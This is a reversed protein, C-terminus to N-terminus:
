HAASARVFRNNMWSLLSIGTFKLNGNDIKLSELSMIEDSEELSLFTGLPLKQYMEQTAPVVLEVESDGYYRETWIISGFNDIVSQKQFNRDLTFPEM